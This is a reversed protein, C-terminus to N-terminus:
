EDVKEKIEAQYSRKKFADCIKCKFIKTNNFVHSFVGVHKKNACSKNRILTM